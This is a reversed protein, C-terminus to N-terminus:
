PIEPDYRAKSKWFHESFSCTIKGSPIEPGALKELTEVGELFVQDYCPAPQRSKRRATEERKKTLREQFGKKLKDFEIKRKKKQRATLDEASTGDKVPAHSVGSSSLDLYEGPAAYLMPRTQYVHHLLSETDNKFRKVAGKIALAIMTDIKNELETILDRDSVSWRTFDDFKTSEIVKKEAGIAMLAPEIRRNLEASWPGFRFFQWDIGTYTKGACRTAYDLDALYMYKIFHINSLDREDWDNESAVALIYQM